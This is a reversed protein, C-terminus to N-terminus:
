RNKFLIELINNLQSEFGTMHVEAQRMQVENLHVKALYMGSLTRMCEYPLAGCTPNGQQPLIKM